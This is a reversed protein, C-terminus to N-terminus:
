WVSQQLVASNFDGTKTREETEKRRNKVLKDGGFAIGDLQLGGVCLLCFNDKASRDAREKKTQALRQGCCEGGLSTVSQSCFTLSVVGFAQASSREEFREVKHSGSGECCPMRISGRARIQGVHPPADKKFFDKKVCRVAPAEQTSLADSDM